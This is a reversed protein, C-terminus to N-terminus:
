TKKAIKVFDDKVKVSVRISITIPSSMIAFVTNPMSDMLMTQTPNEIM